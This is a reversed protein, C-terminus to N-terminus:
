RPRAPSAGAESARAAAIGVRRDPAGENGRSRASWLGALRGHRIAAGTSGFTVQSRNLKAAILVSLMQDRWPNEAGITFHATSACGDPNGIGSAFVHISGCMLTIRSVTVTGGGRGCLLAWVAVPHRTGALSVEAHYGGNMSLFGSAGAHRARHASRRFRLEALRDSCGCGQLTTDGRRAISM